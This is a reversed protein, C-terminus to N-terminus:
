YYVTYKDCCDGMETIVSFHVMWTTKEEIEKLLCKNLAWSFLDQIFPPKEFLHPPPPSFWQQKLQKRGVKNVSNEEVQSKDKPVKSAKDQGEPARTPSDPKSETYDMIYQVEGSHTISDVDAAGLFDRTSPPEGVSHNHSAAASYM